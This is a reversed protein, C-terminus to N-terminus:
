RELSDEWARFRRDLEEIRRKREDLNSPETAPSDGAGSKRETGREAGKDMLQFVLALVVYAVIAAFTKVLLLLVFLGRLVWVNFRLSNALRSCVGALMPGKLTNQIM